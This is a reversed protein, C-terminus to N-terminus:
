GLAETVLRALLVVLSFLFLGGCIQFIRDAFWKPLFIDTVQGSVAGIDEAYIRLPCRWDNLVLIIGEVLIATLAIWTLTSTQGTLAAALVILNAVTFFWFIASHLIKIFTLSRLM